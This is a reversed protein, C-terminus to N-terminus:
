VKGNEYGRHALADFSALTLAGSLRDEKIVDFLLPTAAVHFHRTLQLMFTDDRYPTCPRPRKPSPRAGRTARRPAHRDRNQPLPLGQRSPAANIRPRTRPRASPHVRSQRLDLGNRPTADTPARPATPRSAS